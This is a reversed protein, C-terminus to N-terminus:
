GNDVKVIFERGTKKYKIPKLESNKLWIKVEDPTMLRSLVHWHQENSVKYMWEYVKKKGKMKEAEAKEGAEKEEFYYTEQPNM